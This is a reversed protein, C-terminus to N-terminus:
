KDAKYLILEDTDKLVRVTRMRKLKDVEFNRFLLQQRPVQVWIDRELFAGLDRAQMGKVSKDDLGETLAAIDPISVKEFSVLFPSGSFDLDHGAIVTGTELINDSSKLVTQDKDIVAAVVNFRYGNEILVDYTKLHEHYIMLDVNGLPFRLRVKVDGSKFEARARLDKYFADLAARDYKVNVNVVYDVVDKNFYSQSIKASSSVSFVYLSQGRGQFVEELAIAQVEKKRILDLVM